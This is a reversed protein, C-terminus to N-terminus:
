ISLLRRVKCFAVYNQLTNSSLFVPEYGRGRLMHVLEQQREDPVNEAQLSGVWTIRCTGSFPLAINTPSISSFDVFVCTFFPVLFLHHPQLHATPSVV